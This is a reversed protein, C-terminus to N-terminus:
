NQLCENVYTFVGCFGIGFNWPNQLLQLSCMFNSLHAVNDLEVGRTSIVTFIFICSWGLSPAPSVAMM